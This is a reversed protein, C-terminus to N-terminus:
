LHVRAPPLVTEARVQILHPIGRSPLAVCLLEICPGLIGPPGVGEM